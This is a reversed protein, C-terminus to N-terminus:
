EKNEKLYEGINFKNELPFKKDNTNYEVYGLIIYNKLNKLSNNQSNQLKEFNDNDECLILYYKNETLKLNSSKSVSDLSLSKGYTFNLKHKDSKLRLINKSNEKIFNILYTSPFIGNQLKIFLLTDGFIQNNNFEKESLFFNSNIEFLKKNNTYENIKHEKIDFKILFEKFESINM